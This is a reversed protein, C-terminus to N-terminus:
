CTVLQKTPSKSSLTIKKSPIKTVCNDSKHTPAPRSSM